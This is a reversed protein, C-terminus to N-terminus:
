LYHETKWIPAPKTARALLAELDRTFLCAYRESGKWVSVEVHDDGAHYRVRITFEISM